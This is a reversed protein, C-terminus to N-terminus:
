AASPLAQLFKRLDDRLILRRKGMKRAKLRGDAMAEYLKTRGIGAVHSAEAVTLGQKELTAEAMTKEMMM